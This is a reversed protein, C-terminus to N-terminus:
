KVWHPQFRHRVKRWFQERAALPKEDRPLNPLDAKPKVPILKKAADICFSNHYIMVGDLRTVTPWGRIRKPALFARYNYQSPLLILQDYYLTHLVENLTLQDEVSRFCDRGRKVIEERMQRSAPLHWFTVGANIYTSTYGQGALYRSGAHEVSAAVAAGHLLESFPPLPQLCLVDSNDVILAYEADLKDVFRFRRYYIDRMEHSFSPDPAELHYQIGPTQREPLKEGIIFAHLEVSPNQAFSTFTNDLREAFKGTAVTVVVQRASPM